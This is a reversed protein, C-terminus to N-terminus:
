FEHLNHFRGRQRDFAHNLFAAYTAARENLRPSSLGQRHLMMALVLARANDDLCYGEALIRSPSAQTSFPQRWPLEGFSVSSRTEFEPLQGPQEDLTKIPQHNEGSSITIM